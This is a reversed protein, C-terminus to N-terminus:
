SQGYYQVYIHLVTPAKYLTNESLFYGDVFALVFLNGSRRYWILLLYM